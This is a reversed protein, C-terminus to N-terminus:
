KKEAEAAKETPKDAPKEVPTSEAPEAKAREIRGWMHGGVKGHAWTGAYREGDFLLRTDFDSGLLPISLDTVSLVPTAGAWNMEVPVPVVVNVDGYRVRAHIMWKGDKVKEAKAITYRDEKPTGKRGDVTFSGVLDAGTMLAAFEAEAQNMAVAPQDPRAKAKLADDEAHLQTSAMLAIALIAVMSRSPFM